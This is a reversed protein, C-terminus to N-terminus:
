SGRTRVSEREDMWLVSPVMLFLAISIVLYAHLRQDDVHAALYAAVNSRPLLIAEAVIRDARDVRGAIIVQDRARFGSVRVHGTTSHHPWSVVTPPVAPLWGLPRWSIATVERGAARLHLRDPLLEVIRHWDCHETRRGATCDAPERRAIVLHGAAITPQDDAITGSLLVFCGILTPDLTTRRLATTAAPATTLRLLGIVLLCGGLAIVSLRLRHRWRTM